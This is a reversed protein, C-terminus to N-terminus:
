DEEPLLTDNLLTRDSIDSKRRKWELVSFLGRAVWLCVGAIIAVAGYIRFESSSNLVKRVHDAFDSNIKWYDQYSVVPVYLSSNVNHFTEYPYPKLLIRLEYTKDVEIPMGSIDEVVIYNQEESDNGFKPYSMFVPLGNWCTSINLMGISCNGTCFCETDKSSEYESTAKYKYGKLGEVSIIKDFSYPLSGCMDPEFVFIKNGSREFTFIVESLGGKIESCSGPYYKTYKVGNWHTLVNLNSKTLVEFEGEYSNNKDVFWGFRETPIKRDTKMDNLNKVTKDLYGDFLLEAATKTIIVNEKELSFEVVRATKNDKEYEFTEAIAVAGFNVNTVLTSMNGTSLEPVFKWTRKQKFSISPLDNYFNLDTVEYKENFVFPGIKQFNPLIDNGRFYEKPNTWNMLYIKRIKHFDYDIWSNLRWSNPTLKLDKEMVNAQATLIFVIGTAFLILGLAIITYNMQRSILCSKISRWLTGGNREM